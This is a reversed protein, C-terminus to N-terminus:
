LSSKEARNLEEIYRNFVVNLKKEIDKYALKEKGVYIVGICYGKAYSLAQQRFRLRYAERVCRKIYNRDVAKKFSKKPAGTLFLPKAEAQSTKLYWCKFPYIFFSSGKKFLEDIVIKSKLKEDSPFIFLPDYEKPLDL